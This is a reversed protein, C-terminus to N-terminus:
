KRFVEVERSSITGRWAGSIGSNGAAATEDWYGGYSYDYRLTYRGPPAIGTFNDFSLEMKDEVVEGPGLVAFARAGIVYTVYPGTYPVQRKGDWIKMSIAKATFWDGFPRLVTLKQQSVNRLEAAVHISEKGKVSPTLVSFRLALLGDDSTVWANTARPPAPSPSNTRSACGGVVMTLLLPALAIFLRPAM